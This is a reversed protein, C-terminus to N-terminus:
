GGPCSGRLGDLYMDIDIRVPPGDARLVHVALDSRMRVLERKLQMMVQRANAASGPPLQDLDAEVYVRRVLMGDCRSRLSVLMAGTLEPRARRLRRASEVTRGFVVDVGPATM